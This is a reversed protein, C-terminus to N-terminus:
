ICVLCDMAEMGRAKKISNELYSGSDVQGARSLGEIGSGETNNWGALGLCAEGAKIVKERGPLWVARGVLPLLYQNQEKRSYGQCPGARGPALQEGAVNLEPIQILFHITARRLWFCYKM